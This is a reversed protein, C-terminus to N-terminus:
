PATEPVPPYDTRNIYGASGENSIVKAPVGAAVAGDPVDHTVVANAGIAARDGVRIRGFLKAGPAIYVDDGIVPCGARDGRNARGITVGQSLNCNRGIVTGPHVVLGGFHGIYLGPGIRTQPPIEIGFRLSRRFLVGRAWRAAPRWPGARSELFACTRMWFCYNFGPTWRLHTVLAGAGSRGAVRWLDARVLAAYRRFTM